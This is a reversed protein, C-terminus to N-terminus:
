LQIIGKKKNMYDEWTKTPDGNAQVDVHLKYGMYTNTLTRISPTDLKYFSDHKVQVLGHLHLRHQVEGIEFQFDTKLDIISGEKGVNKLYKRINESFIYNALKKFRAKETNSINQYDKLTNITIKFVSYRPGKPKDNLETVVQNSDNKSRENIKQHRFCMNKGDVVKTNGYRNCTQGTRKGQQLLYECKKGVM